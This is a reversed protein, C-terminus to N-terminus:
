PIIIVYRVDKVCVPIGYLCLVMTYVCLGTLNNVESQTQQSSSPMSGVMLLAKNGWQSEM